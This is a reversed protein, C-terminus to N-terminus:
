GPAPLARGQFAALAAEVVSGPQRQGLTVFLSAIAAHAEAGRENKFCHSVKRAIVAPRPAREARNNTPEVTEPEFLFRLLSGQRHHWGLEDLRAPLRDRKLRLTPTGEDRSFASWLAVAQELAQRLGLGLCRARGWQGELAVSLSRQLHAVCEQQRM